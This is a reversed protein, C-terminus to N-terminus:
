RWSAVRKEMEEQSIVRGQREDELSRDIMANFEDMTMRRMPEDHLVAAKIKMKKLLEMVFSYEQENKPTVVISTM